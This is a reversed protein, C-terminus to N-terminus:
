RALRLPFLALFANIDGRNVVDVFHDIPDLLAPTPM